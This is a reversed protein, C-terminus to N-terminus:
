GDRGHGGRSRALCGAYARRWADFAGAQELVALGAGTLTGPRAEADLRPRPGGADKTFDALDAAARFHGAAVRLALARSIGAAALESAVADILGYAWLQCLGAAAVAQFSSEDSFEIVTGLGSLLARVEADRPFVPIVDACAESSPAPIARVVRAGPAAEALQSHNVGAVMSLLTQGQRWRLAAVAALCDGPPTAFIVTAARDVVLQNDACLNCAQGAVLAAAVAANRPSLLIPRRDGARRLGTVVFHALRGVGIVGLPAAVSAPRASSAM